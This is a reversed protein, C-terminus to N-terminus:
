GELKSAPVWAKSLLQKRDQRCVRVDPPLGKARLHLFENNPGNWSVCIWGEDDNISQILASILFWCRCKEGNEGAVKV